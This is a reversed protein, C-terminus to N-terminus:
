LRGMGGQEQFLPSATEMRGGRGKAREAAVSLRCVLLGYERPPPAVCGDGVFPWKAATM